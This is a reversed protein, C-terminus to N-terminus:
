ESFSKILNSQQQQKITLEKVEFDNRMHPMSIYKNCHMIAWNSFYQNVSDMSILDLLDPIKYPDPPLTYRFQSCQNLKICWLKISNQWITRTCDLAIFITGYKCSHIELIANIADFIINCDIKSSNLLLILIYCHM